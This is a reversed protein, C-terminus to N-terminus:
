DEWDYLTDYDDLYIPTNEGMYAGWVNFVLYDIADGWTMGEELVLMEVMKQKSYAVRMSDLDVGVICKDYGDAILPKNVPRPSYSPPLNEWEINKDHSDM